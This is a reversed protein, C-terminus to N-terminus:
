VQVISPMRFPLTVVQIPLAVSCFWRARPLTTQESDCGNIYMLM